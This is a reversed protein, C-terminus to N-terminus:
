RAILKLDVSRTDGEGISLKTARLKMDALFEPDNAEGDELYDVAVALYANGPPLGRLKFLGQQDPRASRIYRSTGTWKTEDDPFVVVTYDRAPVGDGTAAQGTVETVRDTLIIQADKIEAGSRFDIASDTVDVGGVVISKLTWTPPLGLVRILRPGFLNTARFTGDAAVRAPRAFLGREPQLAQSNIQISDLPLKGASGQAVAVTGSLTGGPGTVVVVGTLDETGVTVPLMAVEMELNAGGFPGGGFQGPRGNMANLVYSGPVVNNITFTGDNRTRANGGLPGVMIPASPDAPNLAIMANALPTGMSSLAQGAVRVTKVPLLAFNVGSQEQGLAITVRQAEAVNGTGPFYTPAYSLADEPDDVPLTRLTASVYYEGPM